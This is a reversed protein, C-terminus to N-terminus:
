LYLNITCILNLLLCINNGIKKILWVINLQNFDSNTKIIYSTICKVLLNMKDEAIMCDSFVEFLDSAFNNLATNLSVNEPDYKSSQDEVNSISLFFSEKDLEQKNVLGTKSALVIQQADYRNVFM